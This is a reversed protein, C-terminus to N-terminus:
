NKQIQIVPEETIEQVLMAAELVKHVKAEVLKEKQMADELKVLSDFFEGTMIENYRWKLWSRVAEMRAKHTEPYKYMEESYKTEKLTNLTAHYAYSAIIEEMSEEKLYKLGQSM